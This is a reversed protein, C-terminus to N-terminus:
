PCDKEELCGAQGDVSFVEAAAQKSAMERLTMALPQGTVEGAAEQGRPGEPVGEGPRVHREFVAM